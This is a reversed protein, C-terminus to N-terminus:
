YVKLILTESNLRGTMKASKSSLSDILKKIQPKTSTVAKPLVENPKRVKKMFSTEENFNIITSGKVSLEKGDEAFYVGLMRYKKNWVLAASSGPICKPEVSKVGTEPDSSAIKVNKVMKDPSKARPKRVTRAKRVKKSTVIDLLLEIFKEVQKDTLHSYAEALDEDGSENLLEEMIPFWRERISALHQASPNNKIIWESMDFNIKKMGSSIFDDVVSEILGSLHVLVQDKGNVDIKKLGAKKQKSALIKSGNQTFIEVWEQLKRNLYDSETIGLSYLRAITGATTFAGDHILEIADANATPKTDRVWKMFWYKKKELSASYNYWNIAALLHNNFKPDLPHPFERANPETGWYVENSNAFRKKM